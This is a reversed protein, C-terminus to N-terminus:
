NLPLDASGVDGPPTTPIASMSDSPPPTTPIASMLASSAYATYGPPPYAPQSPTPAGPPNEVAIAPATQSHRTVLTQPSRSRLRESLAANSRLLQAIQKDKGAIEERLEEMEETQTEALKEIEQVSSWVDYAEGRTERILYKLQSSM